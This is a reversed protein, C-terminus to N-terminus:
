TGALLGTYDAHGARKLAFLADQRSKRDPNPDVEFAIERLQGIYTEDLGHESAGALVLALYWDYPKLGEEPKPAIYTIATLSQGGALCVPFDDARDYGKGLGEADDLASLELGDI